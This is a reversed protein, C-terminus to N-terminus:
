LFQTNPLLLTSSVANEERSAGDAGRCTLHTIMETSKLYSPQQSDLTVPSSSQIPNALVASGIDM